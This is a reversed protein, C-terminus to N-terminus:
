FDASFKNQYNTVFSKCVDFLENIEFDLKMRNFFGTAIVVNSISYGKSSDKRDISFSFPHGGRLKLPTNTYYCKYDQKKLLDKVFDVTLEFEFNRKAASDKARWLKKVIEKELYYEDNQVKLQQYYDIGFKSLLFKLQSLSCNNKKCINKYSVFLDLDQKISEIELESWSRDCNRVKNNGSIDKKVRRKRKLGLCIIRDKINWLPRKLIESIELNTKGKERGEKLILDDNESWSSWKGYRVPIKTLGQNKLFSVIQSKNIRLINSLEHLTKHQLNQIIYEKDTDNIFEIKNM